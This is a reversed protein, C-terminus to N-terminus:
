CRFLASMYPRLHIPHKFGKEVEWGLLLWTYHISVIWRKNWTSNETQKEKERGGWEPMRVFDSDCEFASGITRRPFLEKQKRFNSTLFKM